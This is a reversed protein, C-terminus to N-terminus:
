FSGNLRITAQTESAAKAVAFVGIKTNSTATTTVRKNTADWYALTGQTATDTNLSTLDFVGTTKGEVAAGALADNAAVCFLANLLIGDGSSVNYPATISLTNGEQIFNKM